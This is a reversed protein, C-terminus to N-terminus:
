VVAIISCSYYYGSVMTHTCRSFKTRSGENTTAHDHAHDHAHRGPNRPVATCRPLALLSCHPSLLHHEFGGQPAGSHVHPNVMSLLM